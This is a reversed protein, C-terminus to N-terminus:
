RDAIPPDGAADKKFFENEIEGYIRALWKEARAARDQSQRLHAELDAIREQAARLRDALEHSAEAARELNSRTVDAAKGILV